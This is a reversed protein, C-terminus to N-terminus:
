RTQQTVIMENIKAIVDALTATVALPTVQGLRLQRRDVADLFTRLEADLEINPVRSQASM